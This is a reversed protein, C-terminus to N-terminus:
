AVVTRRRHPNAGGIGNMGGDRGQVSYIIQHRPVHPMERIRNRRGADLLHAPIRTVLGRDDARRALEPLHLMLLRM